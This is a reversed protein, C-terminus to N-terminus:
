ITRHQIFQSQLSKLHFRGPSRSRGWSSVENSSQCHPKQQVNNSTKTIPPFSNGLCTFIMRITKVFINISRLGSNSALHRANINRDLKWGHLVKSPHNIAKVASAQSLYLRLVHTTNIHSPKSLYLCWHRQKEPFYLFLITEFQMM